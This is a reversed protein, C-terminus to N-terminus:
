NAGDTDGLSEGNQDPFSKVHSYSAIDPDFNLDLNFNLSKMMRLVAPNTEIAPQVFTFVFAGDVGADDLMRLEEALEHAQAEQDYVYDGKLIPPWRSWDVIDHGMGGMEGAWTFTCCGFEGIVVPKGYALYGTAFEGYLDWFLRRRYHDVCVLDFIRWDVTETRALSAYAVKGHFVQRVAESTRALSANLKRNYLGSRIEERLSPRASRETLDDRPVIGQMFWTLETGISLVLREPWKQRLAEAAEAAKVTYNFPEEEDKSRSARSSPM